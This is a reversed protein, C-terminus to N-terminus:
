PFVDWFISSDYPFDGQIMALSEPPSEILTSVAVIIAFLQAGSQILLLSLLSLFLFASLKKMIRYKVRSSLSHVGVTPIHFTAHNLL